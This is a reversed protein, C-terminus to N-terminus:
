ELRKFFVTLLGTIMFLLLGWAAFGIAAVPSDALYAIASALGLVGYSIMLRRLWLNVGSGSFLPAAMLMALGLFWGWGLMELGFMISRDGYPLFWDLGVVAGSAINAQVAGLQTFRNISVAIAFLVTFALAGQGFVKKGAPTVALLSAMLMVIVPCFLLSIIGGFMQVAESPPFVFQGALILTLLVVFYVVGGITTILATWFGVAYSWDKELGASSKTNDQSRDYAM